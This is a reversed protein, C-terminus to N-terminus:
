KKSEAPKPLQARLAAIEATQAAVTTELDAVKQIAANLKESASGLDKATSLWIQAKQKLGLGGMMIRSIDGDPMAALDEVTRIGASLLNQVQSPSLAPWLKVSTGDLPPEQDLKFASYAAEYAQLWPAPMLGNRVKDRIERFWAEVEKEVTDRDGPRQLTVFTADKTSYYGNQVSLERDEVARVEFKVYAPRENDVM